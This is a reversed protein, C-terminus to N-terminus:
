KRNRQWKKNNNNSKWKNKAQQRERMLKARQWPALLEDADSNGPRAQIKSAYIRGPRRGAWPKPRVRRLRRRRCPERRCVGLNNATSDCRGNRTNVLVPQYSKALPKGGKIRVEACSWYDGQEYHGGFWAYGLVYLGDPFVDPITVWQRYRSLTRDTGCRGRGCPIRGHTWCSWRFANAAHVAASNRQHAPVLSLRLFGGKHNNRLYEVAVKQGRRWVERRYKHRKNGVPCPGRCNKGAHRGIGGVRCANEYTRALPSVLSSHAPARAALAAVVATAAAVLAAVRLRVM